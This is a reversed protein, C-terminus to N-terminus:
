YFGPFKNNSIHDSNVFNFDILQTIEISSKIKIISPHNEYKRIANVLADDSLKDSLHNSKLWAQIIKMNGFLMWLHIM